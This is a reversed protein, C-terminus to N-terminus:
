SSNNLKGTIEQEEDVRLKGFFKLTFFMICCTCTAWCTMALAGLMRMGFAVASDYTAGYFIGDEALFSGTILGWFGGGFHVAVADLPDDFTHKMWVMGIFAANLTLSFSWAPPGFLGLKCVALMVISGGSGGLVTNIIVRSITDEDDPNAMSGLAAGNFALFGVVLIMGGIGTLPVSHGVIVESQKNNRQNEFRGIRPGLLFAGWFSCVGGLLHVPGCGSYDRYGLKQLWGEESWVWHTTPPYILGIWRDPFRRDLYRRATRNFHAPAGDHLFHIHQRNILPTDELVHPITNELFNTYAQGTPRNVLVHSGVLRDGTTGAWMNLSFRVQRHSPVTARPNEYAWVHQNHFNTIGDRTFQAEDTFLALAPFNPNVGCQRLFWQCFRVRAPYDAPSLAFTKRDPCQRQPYREQYLRRALAANGDAKGYMFHIEALEQNSYMFLRVGVCCQIYGEGRFSSDSHGRLTEKSPLSRRFSFRESIVASYTIYTIYNCREAVAGSVLTAATAAFVCHFFWDARREPPLGVGAFYTGGFVPNGEGHGLAYGVLWYAVASIFIDMINKMIINTANKSRVAGAELCAFGCQMVAFTFL